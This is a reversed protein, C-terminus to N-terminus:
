HCQKCGPEIRDGTGYWHCNYNSYVSVFLLSKKDYDLYYM